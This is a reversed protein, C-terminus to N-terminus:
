CGTPGDIVDKIAVGRLNSTGKGCRGVKFGRLVRLGREFLSVPFLAEVNKVHM